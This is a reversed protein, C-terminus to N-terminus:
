TRSKTARGASHDAHRASTGAAKSERKARPLCGRVVRFSSSVDSANSGDSLKMTHVESSKTLDRKKQFASTCM